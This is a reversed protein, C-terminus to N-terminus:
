KFRYDTVILPSPQGDLPKSQKTRVTKSPAEQSYISMIKEANWRTIDILPDGYSSHPDPLTVDTWNWASKDSNPVGKVIRVREGAFYVLYLTRDETGVLKPRNGTFPLAESKWVGVATRWHHHYVTRSSGQAHHLMMVHIGGDPYAYHTNQNSLGSHTPIPAVVLGPTDLHIFSKGTEGIVTGASNHWTRGHDDSYAYCLDHQNIPHTKEFRDRWIWSVHLRNGSYSISNLYPCRYRSTEGGASFTGIDRSIFKGLGPTWDQKDGNYEEIMGDGNGSTVSRYYLLLNGNPANFFRPYTVSEAPKVSGLTHLVGSFLSADWKVSEPNHAAGSKSVRYNLQSAHHDFAMHITGDTDCIGLVATNHSDNTKFRHDQFRIVEWRGSPLKRRGICVRRDADFWTVYQWGRYSAIPDQQRTRGNVTNGFRTAPGDAFTLAKGDVTGAWIREVEAAHSLVMFTLLLTVFLISPLKLHIFSSPMPFM